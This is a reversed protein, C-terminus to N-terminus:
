FDREWEKRVEKTYEDMQATSFRGKFLGFLPSVSANKEDTTEITVELSKNIMDDPLEIVLKGNKPKIHLKIANM